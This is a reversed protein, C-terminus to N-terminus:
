RLLAVLGIVVTVVVIAVATQMWRAFLWSRIGSPEPSAGPVTPATSAALMWEPPAQLQAVKSEALQLRDALTRAREQWM